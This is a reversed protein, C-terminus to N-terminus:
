WVGIPLDAIYINIKFVYLSEVFHSIGVVAPHSHIAVNKIKMEFLPFDLLKVGPFKWYTYRDSIQQSIALPSSFILYCVLSIQFYAHKYITNKISKHVNKYYM